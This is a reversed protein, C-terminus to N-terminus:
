NNVEESENDAISLTDQIKKMLEKCFSTDLVKNQIERWNSQYKKRLVNSISTELKNHSACADQLAEEVPFFHRELRAVVPPLSHQYFFVVGELNLEPSLVDFFIDQCDCKYFESVKNTLENFM